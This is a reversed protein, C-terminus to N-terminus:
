ILNEIKEKLTSNYIGDKKRDAESLNDFPVLLPHKRQREDKKEGYSWRNYYLYRAWRLHEMRNITDSSAGDEKKKKEIRYFDARAISSGRSFCSAETWEKEAVEMYNSPLESATYRLIYDYNVLKAQAYLKENKISEETLVDSLDGFSSISEAKFFNTFSGGEASFCHINLELNEYLLDQLIDIVDGDAVIVRKMTSLIDYEDRHEDDHLIVKDENVFDLNELFHVDKDNFGWIHYEIKQNLDYINNLFAYKFISKGIDGFGIIAIRYPQPPDAVCIEDYLGHEKWYKRGILDNISIFHVNDAIASNLLLLDVRNLIIFVRGKRLAKANETYFSLNKLDDSFMIIHDKTKEIKCYEGAECTYGHKCSDALMYGRTNDTYIATSDPWKRIWWRSFSGFLHSLASIILSTTVIIASIDAFLIFGNLNDAVPNVFYLAASAYVAELFPLTETGEGGPFFSYGIFAALFPVWCFTNILHQIKKM